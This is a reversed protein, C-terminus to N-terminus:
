FKGGKGNEVEDCQTESMQYLFQEWENTNDLRRQVM